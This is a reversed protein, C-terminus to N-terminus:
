LEKLPSPIGDQDTQYDSDADAEWSALHDEAIGSIGDLSGSFLDSKSCDVEQPLLLKITKCLAKAETTTLGPWLRIAEIWDKPKVNNLLIGGREAREAATTVFRIENESKYEERKLFFPRLLLHFDSEREPDFEASRGTRHDVYTMPGYIFKRGSAGLVAAVKGVTTQIAVGQNGYVSWMAASERLSHFWCWAFRTKWVFEMYHKLQFGSPGGPYGELTVRKSVPCNNDLIWEEIKKAEDGYCKAFADNFRAVDQYFEGEFPDGARLKAVSPIFVLGGLYFFLTRLPVYRWIQENDQM